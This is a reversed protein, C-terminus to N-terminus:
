FCRGRRHKDIADSVRHHGFAKMAKPLGEAREPVPTSKDNKAKARASRLLSFCQILLVMSGNTRLKDFPLSFYIIPAVAYNM